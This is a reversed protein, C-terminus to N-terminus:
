NLWNWFLDSHILNQGTRLLPYLNLIQQYVPLISHNLNYPVAEESPPQWTAQLADSLVETKWLISYILVLTAFVTMNSCFLWFTLCGLLSWCQSPCSPQSWTELNLWYIKKLKPATSRGSFDEDTSGAMVTLWKSLIQIVRFNSRFQLNETKVKIVKGLHCGLFWSM